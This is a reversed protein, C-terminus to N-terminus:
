PKSAPGPQWAWGHARLRGRYREVVPGAEPYHKAMTVRIRDQEAPTLVRRGMPAITLVTMGVDWKM